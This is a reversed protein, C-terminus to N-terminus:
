PRFKKQYRTDDLFDRLDVVNTFGLRRRLEKGDRVIVCVPVASVSWRKAIDPREATNVRFVDFGVLLQPNADLAAKLKDCPACGPRTFVYLDDAKAAAVLLTLILAAAYRM